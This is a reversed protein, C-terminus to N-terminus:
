APRQAAIRELRMSSSRAKRSFPGLLYVRIIFWWFSRENLRPDIQDAIKAHAAPAQSWHMGPNDHHVTHLGNNFLFWNMVPGVVNRSHNIPSEEDAHVHQVYNFILVSFLSVQQPIFIYLLAKKWDIVFAALLFSVLLVYQSICFWFRSRNIRHQKQLYKRIPKQQHFGSVTPYTLLTFLNTNETYRYTITYDGDRNNFKHHNKNHTPIWGFAPFGYFLTLWYDTLANLTKSKWITLHNHNHAIVAVSVAMCLCAIFLVPSFSDRSWQVVLLATTVAMYILTRRDAAYRLMLLGERALFYQQRAASKQRTQPRRALPLVPM